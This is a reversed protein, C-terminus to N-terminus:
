VIVGAAVTHFSVPDILIFSGLNRHDYYSMGLIPEQLKISASFISNMAVLQNNATAQNTIDNLNKVNIASLKVFTERTTHKLIYKSNPNLPQNDFWCLMTNDLAKGDDNGDDVKHQTIYSGRGAEVEGNLKITIIDGMTATDIQEGSENYIEKIAITAGMPMVLVVSGTKFSGSEVRGQYGRFKTGVGKEEKLVYQVPMIAIPNKAVSSQDVSLKDLYSLLPAGDYWALKKSADVINDGQLASIPIIAPLVMDGGPRMSAFIKKYYGLYATEIQRYKKEDFNIADMKNVAAIIHRVGLMVLVASHRKTQILLLDDGQKTFDLKTPDILIIAVDATSAGTVMNRTYSEHGPCDALIYRRSDTTFYRYAVDITIGQEKEAILGDTLAAFDPAGKGNEDLIELQDRTLVKADFLLRGILTSKGDDVSGATIVRLTEKMEFGM